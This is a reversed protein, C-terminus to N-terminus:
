PSIHLANMFYVPPAHGQRRTGDDNVFNSVSEFGLKREEHMLSNVALATWFDLVRSSENSYKINSYFILFEFFINNADKSEDLTLMTRHHYEIVGLEFALYLKQKEFSLNQLQDTCLMECGMMHIRVLEATSGYQEESPVGM